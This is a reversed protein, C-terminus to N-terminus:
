LLDPDVSMIVLDAQTLNANVTGTSSYTVVAGAGTVKICKWSMKRTSNEAAEPAYGGVATGSDALRFEECNLYTLPVPVTGAAADGVITYLFVFKGTQIHSPFVYSRDLIEGGLSSNASPNVIDSVGTTLPHAGSIGLPLTFVSTLSGAGQQAFTPKLFAVQYSVWLEGISGSSGAPLNVTAFEFKGHDYLRIDKGAPVASDRLYKVEVQNVSPDCEIPHIASQSPRTTICFQANEMELKNQYNADAADYDTSMIVTGLGLQTTITTSSTSVFEFIMGLIVYQDFQKAIVSLWPFTKAMGPNLPFDELTFNAPTGPILIDKIYERHSVVMAQNMNGFMPVPQGEYLMSNQNVQYDGFGTISAVGKGLLGGVAAGAGGYMAGGAATGLREWTGTPIGRQLASYGARLGSRLKDTWYGGRGHIVMPGSSVYDNGGASYRQRRRPAARRKKTAGKKKKTFKRKLARYTVPDVWNAPGISGVPFASTATSQTSMITPATGSESTFLGSALDRASELSNIYSTPSLDYGSLGSESSFSSRTDVSPVRQRKQQRTYVVM